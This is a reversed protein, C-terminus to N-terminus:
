TDVTSFLRQEAQRRALLGPVVVGGARDWKLFEAAAGDFDGCNVKILLHSGKLAGLGLNFAFSVLASFQNENINQIILNTVGDEFRDLDGQLLSNATVPDIELGEFIDNGTHGYGITLVGVIDKYATLRCGEHSKILELGAENIKM